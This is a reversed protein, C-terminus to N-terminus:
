PNGGIFPLFVLQVRNENNTSLQITFKHSSVRWLRVRNTSEEFKIVSWKRYTLNIAKEVENFRVSRGYVAVVGGIKGDLIDILLQEPYVKINNSSPKQLIALCDDASSGLVIPDPLVVVEKALTNNATFLLAFFLISKLQKLRM